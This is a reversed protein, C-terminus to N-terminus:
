KNRTLRTAVEPNMQPLIKAVKKSKMASLIDKASNEPMNQLIRAAAKADMAEYIRVMEKKWKTYASDEKAADKSAQLKQINKLNQLEKDKAALDKQTKEFKENVQKLNDVDKKLATLVTDKEKNKKLANVSDLIEKKFEGSIYDKIEGYDIKTGGPKPKSEKAKVIVKPKTPSFDFKFINEFNNNLIYILGTTFLFAFFFLLGYILKTQM